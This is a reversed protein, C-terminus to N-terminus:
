SEYERKDDLTTPGLLSLLENLEAARASHERIETASMSFDLPHPLNPDYGNFWYRSPGEEPDSWDILPPCSEQPEWKGNVVVASGEYRLISGSHLDAFYDKNKRALRGDDIKTEENVTVQLYLTRGGASPVWKQGKEHTPSLLVHSWRGENPWSHHQVTTHGELRDIESCLRDIQKNLECFARQQEENESKVFLAETAELFGPELGSLWIALPDTQNNSESM